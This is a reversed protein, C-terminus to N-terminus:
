NGAQGQIEITYTFFQEGKEEAKVAWNGDPQLVGSPASCAVDEPFCNDATVIWIGGARARMILNTEHYKRGVHYSFDSSDRGGNVAHFIIKAGMGALEQTLHPDPMPTCEPNAWLDNCILGGVTIGRIKFTRLSTQSYHAIEGKSPDELSACRLIKSHFGLYEGEPSYFRIQNYRLNDDEVFCAGLALGLNVSRARSIVSELASSVAGPDFDARYGSLSGEPTLLIEAKERVAFDIARNIADVNRRIDGSVPIQAGAVRLNM